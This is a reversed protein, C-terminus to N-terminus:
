KLVKNWIKEYAQVVKPPCTIQVVGKVGEPINFEPASKIEAPMADKAATLSPVYGAYEAYQAMNEPKMVFEIFKKAADLNKAKAPIAINDIWVEVGEKPYIYKIDKNQGRAIFADGSWAMQMAVDGSQLREVYGDATAIKVFPKQALLTAQMTKFTESKDDCYPTGHYLSLIDAITGTDDLIGLNKASGEPRKFYQDWSTIDEKMLKTNVAIGTTGYFLPLSYKHEADYSPAKVSADMGEAHKRLDEPLEMLLGDKAMLPIYPGSPMVIDYAAGSGLKAVMKDNSSYIESVVDIGSEKEFRKFLEEDKYTDWSYIFLKETKEAAFAGSSLLAVMSIALLLPKLKMKM